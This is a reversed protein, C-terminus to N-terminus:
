LFYPKAKGSRNPASFSPQGLMDLDDAAESSPNKVKSSISSSSGKKAAQGGAAASKDTPCNWVPPRGFQIFIPDLCLALYKFFVSLLCISISHQVSQPPPPPSCNM